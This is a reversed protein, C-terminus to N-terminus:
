GASVDFRVGSGADSCLAEEGYAGGKTLLLKVMVFNM